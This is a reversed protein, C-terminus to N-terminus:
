AFFSKAKACRCRNKEPVFRLWPHCSCLVCAKKKSGKKEQTEETELAGERHTYDFAVDRNQVSGNRVEGFFSLWKRGELTTGFVKQWFLEKAVCCPHHCPDFNPQLRQVRLEHMAAIRRVIFGYVVWRAERRM